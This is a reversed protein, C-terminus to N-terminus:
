LDDMVIMIGEIVGSEMEYTYSHTIGLCQSVLYAPTLEFDPIDLTHLPDGTTSEANSIVVPTLVLESCPDTAETLFIM